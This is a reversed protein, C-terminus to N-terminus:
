IHILSLHFLKHGLRRIGGSLVAEGAIPSKVAGKFLWLRCRNLYFLRHKDDASLTSGAVLRTFTNQVNGVHGTLQGAVQAMVQQALTVTSEGSMLWPRTWGARASAQFGDSGCTTFFHRWQWAAERGALDRWHAVLAVVEQLKGANLPCPVTYALYGPSHPM